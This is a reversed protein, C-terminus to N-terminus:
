WAYGISIGPWYPIFTGAAIVPTLGIKWMFGGDIPQRRYQFSMTGIIGSEFGDAFTTNGGVYTFGAGVEFYKGDKGLLYNIIVPVTLVSGGLDGGGVYGIGLRGGLGDTEAAAFRMDYNASFVLGNGLLEVYFTKTAQAKAQQRDCAMFMLLALIFTISRNM